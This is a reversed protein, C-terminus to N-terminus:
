EVLTVLGGPDEIDVENNEFSCEIFQLQINRPVSRILAGTGNNRFTLSQYSSNTSTSSKSDFCFGVENHDFVCDRLSVWSGEAAKVGTEYGTFSCDILHISDYATVGEGGDGEFDFGYIETIAPERTKIVVSGKMGTRNEGDDCGFLLATRTDIVLEGEYTVPGLFLRLVTDPDEEQGVKDILAQIDELTDLPTDEYHYDLVPLEEIILSHSLKLTDGNKMKLEWNLQNSGSNAGSYVIDAKLACVFGGGFKDDPGVVEVAPKGDKREATVRSEAVQEMFETQADEVDESSIYLQSPYASSDDPMTKVVHESDGIGNVGSRESFSLVVRYTRGNMKYDLQHTGEYVKPSQHRIIGFVVAAIVLCGALVALIKKRKRAPAQLNRIEVQEKECYPCWSADEPLEKGCFMCKKM